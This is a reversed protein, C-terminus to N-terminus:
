KTQYKKICEVLGALMRGGVLPTAQLQREALIEQFELGWYVKLEKSQQFYVNPDFKTDKRAEVMYQDMARRQGAIVERDASSLLQDALVGTVGSALSRLSQLPETYDGAWSWCISELFETISKAFPPQGGAVAMADTVEVCTNRAVSWQQATVPQGTVEDEYLQLVTSIQSQVISPLPATPHDASMLDRLIWVLVHSFLDPVKGGVEIAQLWATWHEKNPDPLVFIPMANHLNEASAKDPIAVATAGVLTQYLLALQKPVGTVSEFNGIDASELMAGMPTCLSHEPVWADLMVPNISRSVRHKEIREISQKKLAPNGHFSILDSM